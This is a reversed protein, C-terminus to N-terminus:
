DGEAPWMNGNSKQKICWEKVSELSTFEKWGFPLALHYINTEPNHVIIDSNCCSLDSFVNEPKEDSWCSWNLLHWCEEENFKDLEVYGKKIINFPEHTYSFYYAFPIKYINIKM